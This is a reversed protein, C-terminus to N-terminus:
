HYSNIISLAVLWAKTVYWFYFSCPHVTFRAQRFHRLQQTDKNHQGLQEKRDRDQKNSVILDRNGQEELFFVKELEEENCDEMKM